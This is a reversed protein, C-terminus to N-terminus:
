CFLVSQGATGIKSFNPINNIHINGNKPINKQTNNGHAYADQYPPQAPPVHSWVPRYYHMLVRSDDHVRVDIDVRKRHRIVYNHICANRDRRGVNRYDIVREDQRHLCLCVFSIIVPELYAAVTGVKVPYLSKGLRLVDGRLGNGHIWSFPPSQADLCPYASGYM